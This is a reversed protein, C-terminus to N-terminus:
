DEAAEPAEKEKIKGVVRFETRRNEAKGEETDNTAIPLTEGYGKYKLRKKDVGKSILYDVVTQARNQSLKMNDRATGVNDTHSSIEVIISPNAKILVLLTTDVALKVSEDIAFSGTNYFINDLRIPKTPRQLSISKISFTDSITNTDTTVEVANNLFQDKVGIVKYKKNPELDFYYSGSDDVSSYRLLLEEGSLTDLEYLAATAGRLFEGRVDLIKGEIGLRVVHLKKFSYIDDCCGEHKLAYSGARNSVVFGKDKMSNHTYHLDDLQSNIPIGLNKRGVWKKLEGTCTFVDLGGFGPWFDSSFYLAKYNNDIYPTMEDGVSNILRGCNRPTSYSGKKVNYVTYWIDLGGRGGERDSVFYIVEKGRKSEYGIAPQTATSKRTNIFEPLVEPDTWKGSDKKETRYLKCKMGLYGPVRACLSFVFTNGDKSFAGNAPEFQGVWEKNDIAPFIGVNQWLSDVLKAEYINTYKLVQVSLREGIKLFGEPKLSSYIISSDNIFKPAFDTYRHNIVTDLLGVEIDQPQNHQQIYDCTELLAKAKKKFTKYEKGKYKKSFHHLLGKVKECEGNSIMLKAYYFKSLPFSLSDSEYISKFAPRAKEFNRSQFYMMALQYKAKIDEPRKSLYLESFDIASYLDGRKLAVTAVKKLKGASLQKKAEIEAEIENREQGTQHGKLLVGSNSNEVQAFGLATTLLLIFLYGLRM